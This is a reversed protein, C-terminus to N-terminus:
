LFNKVDIVAYYNEGNPVFCNASVNTLKDSNEGFTVYPSYVYGCDFLAEGKRAMFIKQAPFLPDKYLNWRNNITGMHVVGIGFSENLAPSPAFGATATEFIACIEPSAVIVNAPGRLTKRHIVNSVEVIKIYLSESKERITNGEATNFDFSAITGANNMCNSINESDFECALEESVYDIIEDSSAYSSGFYVSHQREKCKISQSEIRLTDGDQRFYYVLGCEQRFPQISVINGSVMRDVLRDIIKLSYKQIRENSCTENYRQQNELLIDKVSIETLEWHLPFGNKQLVLDNDAAKLFPLKSAVVLGSTFKLFDRRDIM